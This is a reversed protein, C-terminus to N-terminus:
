SIESKTYMYMIAFITRVIIHLILRWLSTKTANLRLLIFLCKQNRVPGRYMMRPDSSMENYYM